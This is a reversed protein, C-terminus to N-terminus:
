RGSTEHPLAEAQRNLAECFAERAGPFPAGRAELERAVLMVDNLVGWAFRRPRREDEAHALAHVGTWSMNELSDWLEEVVACPVYVHGVPRAKRTGWNLAEGGLPELYDRRLDAASLPLELRGTHVHEDGTIPLEVSADVGRLQVTMSDAKIGTVWGVEEHDTSFAFIGKPIEM